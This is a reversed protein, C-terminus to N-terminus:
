PFKVPHLWLVAKTGRGTLVTKTFTKLTAKELRGKKM